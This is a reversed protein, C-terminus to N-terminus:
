LVRGNALDGDQHPCWRDLAIYRDGQRLVIVEEGDVVATHPTDIASNNLDLVPVWAPAGRAMGDQEGQESKEMASGRTRPQLGSMPSCAAEARRTAASHSGM